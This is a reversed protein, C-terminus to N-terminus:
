EIKKEQLNALATESQKLRFRLDQDRKDLEQKARLLHEREKELRIIEDKVALGLNLTEIQEATIQLGLRAFLRHLEQQITDIQLSLQKLQEMEQQYYPLSDILLTIADQNELLETQIQTAEIQNKLRRAEDLRPSLRNEIALLESELSLKRMGEHPFPPNGIKELQKELEIKEVVLPYARNWEKKEIISRDIDQVKERMQQLTKETKELQELLDEYRNIAQKAATLKKATEQLQNM